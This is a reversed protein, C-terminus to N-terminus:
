FVELWGWKSRHNNTLAKYFIILNQIVQCLIQIVQLIICLVAALLNHFYMLNFNFDKGRTTDTDNKTMRHTTMRESM